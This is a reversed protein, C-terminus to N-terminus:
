VRALESVPRLVGAADGASLLGSTLRTRANTGRSVSERVLVVMNIYQAKAAEHAASRRLVAGAAHPLLRARTHWPERERGHINRRGRRALLRAASFQSPPTPCCGPV